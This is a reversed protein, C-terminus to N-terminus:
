GSLFRCFEIKRQEDTARTEVRNRRLIRHIQPPRHRRLRGAGVTKRPPGLLGSRVPSIMPTIQTWLSDGPCYTEVSNLCSQGSFGGCIFIRESYAASSADSRHNNMSPMHDGM